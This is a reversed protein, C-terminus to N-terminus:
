KQTLYAPSAMILFVALRVRNLRADSAATGGAAPISVSNVADRIQQRVASPLTNGTLLLNLRDVLSDANDALTLLSTYNPQIDRRTAGTPTSGMGSQVWSRMSNLYGVVSSENTIQMEPAVLGAASIATNPPSYGPRYFNFVSPSRMATQGLSSGPDDTRGMQWRGSDSSAEAVRAWNVVRQLPERIRGYSPDTSATRAETDLLIARIVAKLDGRAGAGNNAWVAAVRGVYAPSPNSTVMRQILQRSLFPGVNPHAAITDLATKLDGEPNAATSAPITTGLFTKASISHFKAYSQMPQIERDAVAAGGYFRTDTRDAANPGAYWSYGTFVRSLGEIDVNDYTEVPAGNAIVVSGDPNLRYLGISFLQMVERAYNQDPVRTGSEKENRLWSLYLGMMPHLSVDEILQRYNGFANRGLTDYYSAVGRPTNAVTSDNLSVVFIQSLAFTVRQRLQDQGTAAQKWWSEYFQNEGATQGAAVLTAAVTDYTQRHQIQPAAFQENLWATYGISMLRDIDAQTAGFTAQQLFRAADAQTPPRDTPPAGPVGPLGPVNSATSTGSGSDGGGCAALLAAATLSAFRLGARIAWTTM